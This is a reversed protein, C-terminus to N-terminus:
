SKDKIKRALKELKAKPFNWQPSLEQAKIYDERARDYDGLREYAMGRNYYAVHKKSLKLELAHSYEAVAEDFVQSMFFINGRNVYIEGADPMMKRAREYDHKADEYRELAVYIIGRNLYTAATDHLSLRVSDLAYNCSELDQFSAMNMQTAITASM